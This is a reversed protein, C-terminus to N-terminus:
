GGPSTCRTCIHGPACGVKGSVQDILEAYERSFFYDILSIDKINPLKIEKHYDMCCLSLSGDYLFHLWEDLRTCHFRHKPDIQRVTGMNLQNAGREERHLTGARDHFTFADIDINKLSINHQRSMQDWYQRYEEQTFYTHSKDRSQGAGRLRITYKGKAKKILMSIHEIARQHDLQMIHFFTEANIGHHSVWIDHRRDKMVALLNDIVKETLAAGNTSVEVCTQPFAQYIDEIKDFITKDILPEQMLYPCFKGTNIGDKFPALNALISKWVENQMRGHNDAHWSEIYPCFVCNANCRSHTQVQINKIPPLWGHRPGDYQRAVKPGIGRRVTRNAPHGIPSM